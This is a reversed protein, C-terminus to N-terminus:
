FHKTLVVVVFIFIILLNNNAAVANIIVFEPQADDLFVNVAAGGAHVKRVVEGARIRPRRWGDM